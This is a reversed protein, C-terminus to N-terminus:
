RSRISICLAGIDKERAEVSRWATAAAVESARLEGQALKDRLTIASMGAIDANRM